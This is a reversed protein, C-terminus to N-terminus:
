VARTVAASPSRRVSSSMSSFGERSTPKSPVTDALLASMTSLARSSDTAPAVVHARGILRPTGNADSVAGPEVAVARRRHGVHGRRAADVDEGAVVEGLDRHEDESLRAGFVGCLAVGGAEEVVELRGEFM